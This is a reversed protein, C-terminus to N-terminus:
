LSWPDDAAATTDTPDDADHVTWGRMPYLELPIKKFIDKYEHM